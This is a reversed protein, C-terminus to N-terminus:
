ANYIYNRLYLSLKASPATKSTVHRIIVQVIDWLDCSRRSELFIKFVQHLECPLLDGDSKRRSPTAFMQVARPLAVSSSTSSGFPECSYLICKFYQRLADKNSNCHMWLTSAIRVHIKHQNICTCNSNSLHRIVRNQAYAIWRISNINSDCLDAIVRNQITQTFSTHM